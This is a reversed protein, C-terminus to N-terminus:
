FCFMYLTAAWIFNFPISGSSWLTWPPSFSMKNWFARNLQASSVCTDVGWFGDINSAAADPEHNGQWVHTLKQFSYNKPCPKEFNHYATYTGFLSRWSFQLFMHIERLCSNTNSAPSLSSNIGTLISKMKSLLVEQLTPIELYPYSSNAGFLGMWRHKLFMHVEGFFSRINSVAGHQM